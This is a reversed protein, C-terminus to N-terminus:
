SALQCISELAQLQDVRGMVILTQGAQLMWDPSPNFQTEETNANFIAIVIVGYRSRLQNERLTKGIVEAKPQIEIEEIHLDLSEIAEIQEMFRHVHPRILLQAMRMAGIEYPSLVKNAGARKLLTTYHDNAYSTRALIYLDPNLERAMLAVFANDRDKELALVLKAARRIGAAELIHEQEADGSIYLYNERRLQEGKLPDLEIIIFDKNAHVLDLAIREGIRGYGCIIIHDKLQSITRQMNREYFSTRRLFLEATRGLLLVVTGIGFAAIFMTFVRGAHSLPHTEGFGISTLTIFTMYLGDLWYWDEIWVYGFTGVLIIVLLVTTASIIERIPELRALFRSPRKPGKRFRFM